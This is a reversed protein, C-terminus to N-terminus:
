SQWLVIMLMDDTAAIEYRLARGSDTLRFLLSRHKEDVAGFGFCSSGHHDSDDSWLRTAVIM